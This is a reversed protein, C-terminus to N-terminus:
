ESSQTYDAVFVKVNIASGFRQIFTVSGPQVQQRAVGRQGSSQRLVALDHHPHDDADPRDIRKILVDLITFAYTSVGGM